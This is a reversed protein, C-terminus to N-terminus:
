RHRRYQAGFVRGDHNDIEWPVAYIGRSGTDSHWTRVRRESHMSSGIYIRVRWRLINCVWEREKM